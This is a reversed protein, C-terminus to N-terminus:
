NAIRKPKFFVMTFIQWFFALAGFIFVVDGVLRVWRLTDFLPQQMFEESRAYWLGESISAYGQIIGIPLLSSVIMLILGGNLLWFGWKMLKDNFPTNPRLYRAILFVFGLALFGYVGFLAAHAHVATTNLGQIYYLSIPPNILFGFVGAGLMNWFAVAVFCYIPWKLREMWPAKQKMAWHEWAEHGLLVLPVVELASFSAGVAIIPTTAGAFYLHHFTGPIGGILFLAAETITAVTATRRSVLGLSVFIFSLAAVSFVEFFGEVWLHVVWWRWYEMVSLHTHEGYFLAPGYFLGIAIVSAFFLALLNKDGPQKFANVTGRLM